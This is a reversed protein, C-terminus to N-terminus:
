STKSGQHETCRRNRPHYARKPDPQRAMRSTLTTTTTTPPCPTLEMQNVPVHTIAHVRVAQKCDSVTM